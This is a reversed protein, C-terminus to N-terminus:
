ELFFSRHYRLFSRRGRCLFPRYRPIWFVRYRRLSYYPKGSCDFFMLVRLRNDFEMSVLPSSLGLSDRRRDSDARSERPRARIQDQLDPPLEDICHEMDEFSDKFPNPVAAHLEEIQGDEYGAQNKVRKNLIALVAKQKMASQKDWTRQTRYYIGIILRLESIIM